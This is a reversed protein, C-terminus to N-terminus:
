RYDTNMRRQNRNFSRCLISIDQGNISGSQDGSQAARCLEALRQRLIREEPTKQGDERGHTQNAM